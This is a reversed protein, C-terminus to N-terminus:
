FGPLCEFFHDLDGFSEEKIFLNLLYHVFTLARPFKHIPDVFSFERSNLSNLIVILWAKSEVTQPISEMGRKVDCKM